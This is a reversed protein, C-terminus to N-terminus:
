LAAIVDAREEAKTIEIKGLVPYGRFSEDTGIAQRRGDLSFMVFTPSSEIDLLPDRGCGVTAVILLVFLLKRLFSHLNGGSGRDM